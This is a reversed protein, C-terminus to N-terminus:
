FDLNLTTLGTLTPLASGIAKAGEAGIKNDSKLLILFYFFIFYYGALIAFNNPPLLTLFARRTNTPLYSAQGM